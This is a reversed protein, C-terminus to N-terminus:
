CASRGNTQLIHLWMFYPLVKNIEDHQKKEEQLENVLKENKESSKKTLDLTIEQVGFNLNSIQTNVLRLKDILNEQSSQDLHKLQSLIALMNETNKYLEDLISRENCIIKQM